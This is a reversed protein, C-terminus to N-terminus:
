SDRSTCYRKNYILCLLCRFFCKGKLHLRIDRHLLSPEMCRSSRHQSAVQHVPKRGEVTSSIKHVGSHELIAASTSRNGCLCAASIRHHLYTAQACATLATHQQQASSQPLAHAPPKWVAHTICCSSEYVRQILCRETIEEM